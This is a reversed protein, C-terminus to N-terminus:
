LIIKLINRRFKKYLRFIIHFLLFLIALLVQCIILSIIALFCIWQRAVDNNGDTYYEKGWFGLICGNVLLVLLMRKWKGFM